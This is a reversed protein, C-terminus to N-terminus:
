RFVEVKLHKVGWNIADKHKDMYVDIAYGDYSRLAGGTDGATAYGYGPIFVSSGYPIKKPDVAIYRKSPKYGLSTVPHDTAACIGSVNDFPAYATVKAEIFSSFVIREQDIPEFGGRILSMAVILSLVKETPV